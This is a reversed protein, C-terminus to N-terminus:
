WTFLKLSHLDVFFISIRSGLKQIYCEDYENQEYLIYGINGLVYCRISSFENMSIPLTTYAFPYNDNNPRSQSDYTFVLLCISKKM